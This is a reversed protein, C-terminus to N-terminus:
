PDDPLDKPWYLRLWDMERVATPATILKELRKYFLFFSFSGNTFFSMFATHTTCLIKALSTSRHDCTRRAVVVIISMCVMEYM